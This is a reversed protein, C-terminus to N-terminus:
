NLNEKALAADLFAERDDESQAWMGGVAFGPMQVLEAKFLDETYVFSEGGAEKSMMGSLHAIQDFAGAFRLQDFELGRRQDLMHNRLRSLKWAVREVIGTKLARLREVEVISERKQTVHEPKLSGDPVNIWPVSTAEIATRIESPKMMELYTSQM